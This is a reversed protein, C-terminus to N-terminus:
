EFIVSDVANPISLVYLTESAPKGKNDPLPLIGGGVGWGRNLGSSQVVNMGQGMNPNPPTLPQACSIILIIVNHMCLCKHAGSWKFHM